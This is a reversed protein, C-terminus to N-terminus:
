VSDGIKTIKTHENNGFAIRKSKYEIEDTFHSACKILVLTIFCLSYSLPSRFGCCFYFWFCSWSPGLDLCQYDPVLRSQSWDRTVIYKRTIM